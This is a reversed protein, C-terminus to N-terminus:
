QSKKEMKQEIKEMMACHYVKLKYVSLITSFLLLKLSLFQFSFLPIAASFNKENFEQNEIMIMEVKWWATIAQKFLVNM